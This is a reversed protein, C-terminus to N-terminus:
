KSGTLQNPSVVLVDLQLVAHPPPPVVSRALESLLASAVLLSPEVLERMSPVNAADLIPVFANIQM